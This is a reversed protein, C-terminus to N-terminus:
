IFELGEFKKDIIKSDLMLIVGDITFATIYTAMQGQNEESKLAVIISDKSGPLFKFSSYGRTPILTGVRKAEVNVFNEDAILLVNCGLLEDLTENYREKSCRRPLFFWCNHVDSWAASEHIMYGPFEIDITQRLRKYNSIWNLSHTEGLPSVVKVWQPNHNEFVGSSTTWEKGMSGIYLQENKVTAWESKFGKTNKGDGDMLIVWPYIKDNELFYVLGTRDEVTILRGDFTVLESLEMGRGKMGLTSMLKTTDEDWSVSIENKFNWVLWGKKLMSFWMNKNETSKSDHDLDSVIAIRYSVRTSTRIPPTLPYTKNYTYYRYHCPALSRVSSSISGSCLTNRLWPHTWYLITLIVAVFFFMRYPSQIRLASNGVRYIHPTHLARRWEHLSVMTEKRPDKILVQSM